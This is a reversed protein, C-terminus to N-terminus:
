TIDRVFKLIQDKEKYKHQVYTKHNELLPYLKAPPPSNLASVTHSSNIGHLLTLPSFGTKLCTSANYQKIVLPLAHYWTFSNQSSLMKKLLLKITAVGKEAIGNSSPSLAALQIKKIGLIHLTALFAKESFCAGNDSM